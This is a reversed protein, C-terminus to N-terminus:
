ITSFFYGIHEFIYLIYLRSFFWCLYKYARVFLLLEVLIGFLPKSHTKLTIVVVIIVCWLHKAWNKEIHIKCLFSNATKRFCIKSHWFSMTSPSGCFSVPFCVILLLMTKVGDFMTSAMVHSHLFNGWEDNYKADFPIELVVHSIWHDMQGALM